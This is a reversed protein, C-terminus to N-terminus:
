GIVLLHQQQSSLVSVKVKYKAKFHPLATKALLPVLARHWSVLDLGDPLTELVQTVDDDIVSPPDSEPQAFRHPSFTM